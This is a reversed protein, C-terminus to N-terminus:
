KRNKELFHIEAHCNKCLLICKNLENVLKEVGYENGNSIQFKKDEPNVHHFVLAEVCENYGCIACGNNKLDQVFQKRKRQYKKTNTNMEAKHRRNYEKNRKREQELHEQYYKKRKQNLEKRHDQHYKASYKQRNM